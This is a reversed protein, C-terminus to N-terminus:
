FGRIMAPYGSVSIRVAEPYFAGSEETLLAIM